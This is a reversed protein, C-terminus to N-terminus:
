IYFGASLDTGVNGRILFISGSIRGSTNAYTLDSIQVIEHADTVTTTELPCWNFMANLATMVATVLVGILAGIMIGSAVDDGTGYWSDKNLYKGVIAGVIVGIIIWIM